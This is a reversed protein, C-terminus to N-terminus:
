ASERLVLRPTVVTRRPPEGGEIANVLHRAALRGIRDIDLDISTLPPRSSEAMVTWNDFGVVAVDDPVRRGTERLTDLVGLAIQDSGCFVADVDPAAEL